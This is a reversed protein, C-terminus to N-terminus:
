GGCGGCGGGCGGGCSSGCSGCSSGCSNTGIHGSMFSSTARTSSTTPGQRGLVFANALVSLGGGLAAAGFLGYALAAENANVQLPESRATQKLAANEDRLTDLAKSGRRTLHPLHWGIKFLVYFSLALLIVIFAVPRGRTFGIAAKLIGAGTVAYLPVLTVLLAWRHSSTKITLELERLRQNVRDAQHAV